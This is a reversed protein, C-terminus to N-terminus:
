HLNAGVGLDSALMKAGRTPIASPAWKEPRMSMFWLPTAPFSSLGRLSGCASRRSADPEYDRAATSRRNERIARAPIGARRGRGQEVAAGARSAPRSVVRRASSFGFSGGSSQLRTRAPTDSVIWYFAVAERKDPPRGPPSTRWGEGVRRAGGAALVCVEAPRCHQLATLQHAVSDERWLGALRRWGPHVGQGTTQRRAPHWQEHAAAKRNRADAHRRLIATSRRCFRASCCAPWTPIRPRGAPARQLGVRHLQALFEEPTYARVRAHPHRGAARGPVLRVQTQDPINDVLQSTMNVLHVLRLKENDKTFNPYSEGLYREVEDNLNVRGEVIARALLQGAFTKSVQAIEYVTDRTPQRNGDLQTTGFNYFSQQGADYIGISM